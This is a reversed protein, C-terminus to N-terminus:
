RLSGLYTGVDVLPRITEVMLPPMSHTHADFTRRNDNRSAGLRANQEALVLWALALTTGDEKDLDEILQLAEPTLRTESRECKALLTELAARLKFAGSMNEVMLKVSEADDLRVGIKVAHLRHWASIGTSEKSKAIEVAEKFASAAQDKKREQLAVAAIGLYAEFRDRAAGPLGALKLAEEYEGKRALGEAFGVRLRVDKLEKSGSLEPKKAISALKEEGDKAYILAIQQSFVPPKSGPAAALSSALKVALDPQKRENLRGAIERMAMAQVEPADIESLNSRLMGFVDEWSVKEKATIDFDNDSGMDIQALALDILFLQEHIQGDKSPKGQALSGNFHERAKAARKKEDSHLYLLGITRHVQAQLLPKKVKPTTGKVLDQADRLSNHQANSTWLKGIGIGGLTLVSIVAVVYFGRRLWGFVGLPPKKPEDIAGAQKLSDQRAKTVDQAGWAGELAEPQNIIAAAPGKRDMKRWDKKETVKPLPVKLIRKCEPNPCQSQKGAMDIPLKIEQDCYQCTFDITQPATAEEPPPPEDALASLAEEEINEPPREVTEPPKAPTGNSKVPGPVPVGNTASKDTTPKTKVIPKTAPAPKMPAPASPKAPAPTAPPEGKPPVSAASVLVINQCVPCKIKKGALHDKVSLTKKCGECKVRIPM